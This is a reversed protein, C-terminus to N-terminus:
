NGEQDLKSKPWGRVRLSLFGCIVVFFNRGITSLDAELLLSLQRDRQLCRVVNVNIIEM